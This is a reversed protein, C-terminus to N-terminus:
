LPGALAKNKRRAAWGMIGIGLALMAYVEPEPVPAAIFAHNDTEFANRDSYFKVDTILEGADAFVNYYASFGQDGNPPKLVASGDFSGLLQSGNYFSVKNYADPSGWLFGYYTVGTGFSVIGPGQQEVPRIGISWYNEESGPPRASIGGPFTTTQSDYNYLAGGQFKYDVGNLTGSPLSLSAFSDNNVGNDGFTVTCSLGCVTNTYQGVTYSTTLAHSTSVIGTSLIVVGVALSHKCLKM